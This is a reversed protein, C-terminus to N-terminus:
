LMRNHRDLIREGPQPRVSDQHIQDVVAQRGIQRAVALKGSGHGVAKKGESTVRSGGAGIRDQEGARREPGADLRHRARM